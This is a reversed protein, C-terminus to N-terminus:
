AKGHEGNLEKQPTSPGSTPVGVGATHMVVGGQPGAEGSGGISGRGPPEVGKADSEAMDRGPEQVPRAPVVAM